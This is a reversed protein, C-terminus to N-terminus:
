QLAVLVDTKCGDNVVDFSSIVQQSQATASKCASMIANLQEDMSRAQGSSLIDKFRLSKPRRAFLEAMAKRLAVNLAAQTLGGRNFDTVVVNGDENETVRVWFFRDNKSTIRVSFEDVFVDLNEDSSDSRIKQFDFIQATM